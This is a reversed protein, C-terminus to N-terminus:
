FCRKLDAEFFDGFRYVYSVSNATSGDRSTDVLRRAADMWKRGITENKSVQLGQLYLEGLIVMSTVDDQEANKRIWKLAENRDQDVGYGRWYAHALQQACFANGLEAAKRNFALSM